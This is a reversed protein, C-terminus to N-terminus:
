RRLMETLFDTIAETYGKILAVPTRLDHSIGMIFRQRRLENDKLALRMKELNDVLHSIEDAKKSVASSDIRKDIGGDAINQVTKEVFTVSSFLTHSIQYIIIIAVAEFLTTVIIGALAFRREIWGQRRSASIRTRTIFLVGNMRRRPKGSYLLKGIARKEPVYIKQFQYEYESSTSQVFDFVENESVEMGSPRDPINSSLIKGDYFVSVEVGQPVGYLRNEIENWTSESLDIGGLARIERYGKILFREPSSYYHYLSIALLASVPVLVIVLILISLRTKIKM